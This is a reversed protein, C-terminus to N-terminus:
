LSTSEIRLISASYTGDLSPVFASKIQNSSVFCMTKTTEETNSLAVVIAMASLADKTLYVWIFIKYFYSGM